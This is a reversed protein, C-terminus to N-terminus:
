RSRPFGGMIRALGDRPVGDVVNFGGGAWLRSTEPHWLLTVPASSTEFLAPDFDVPGSEEATWWDGSTQRERHGFGPSDFRRDLRGTLSLRHLGADDAALSAYVYLWGHEGPTALVGDSIDRILPPRFWAVWRNGAWLRLRGSASNDFELFVV